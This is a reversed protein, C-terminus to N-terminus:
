SYVMPAGGLVSRERSVGTESCGETGVSVSGAELESVDSGGPTPELGKRAEFGLEDWVDWSGGDDGWDGRRGDDM